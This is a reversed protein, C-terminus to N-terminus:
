EVYFLLLVNVQVEELEGRSIAPVRCRFVGEDRATLVVINTEQLPVAGGEVIIDDLYEDEDEEVEYSAVKYGYRSSHRDRGRGGIGSIGLAGMNSSGDYSAVSGAVSRRRQRGARHTSSKSPAGYTYSLKQRMLSATNEFDDTKLQVTRDAPWVHGLAVWRLEVIVKFAKLAHYLTADSCKLHPVLSDALVDAPSCDYGGTLYVGLTRDKSLRVLASLSGLLKENPSFLPEPRPGAPGFSKMYVGYSMAMRCGQEVFEVEHECDALYATWHLTKDGPKNQNTPYFREEGGDPSRVVLAGGRHPVPLTIVVSAVLHSGDRIRSPKPVDQRPGTRSGALFIEFKDRVAYLYTGPYHKNLLAMKITDLV